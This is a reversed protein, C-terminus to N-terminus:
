PSPPAALAQTVTKKGVNRTSRLVFVWRDEDPQRVLEYRKVEVSTTDDYPTDQYKLQATSLWTKGGAQVVRADSLPFDATAATKFVFESPAADPKALLPVQNWVADKGSPQWQFSYVYFSHANFHNVLGSNVRLTGQASAITATGPKYQQAEAPAAAIAAALLLYSLTRM